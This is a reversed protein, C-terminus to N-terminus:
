VVCRDVSRAIKLTRARCRPWRAFDNARRSAGASTMLAALRCRMFSSSRRTRFPNPLTSPILPSSPPLSLNTLFARYKSRLPAISSHLQSPPANSSIEPPPPTMTINSFSSPFLIFLASHSTEFHQFPMCAPIVGMTSLWQMCIYYLDLLLTMIECLWVTIYYKCGFGECM